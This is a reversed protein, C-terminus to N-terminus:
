CGSWPGRRTGLLWELGRQMGEVHGGHVRWTGLLKEQPGETYRAIM